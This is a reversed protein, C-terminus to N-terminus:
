SKSIHLFIKSKNTFTKRSELNLPSRTKQAEAQCTVSQSEIGKGQSLGALSLPHCLISLYRCLLPMGGCSACYSPSRRRRYSNYSNCPVLPVVTLLMLVSKFSKFMNLCKCTRGWDIRVKGVKVDSECWLMDIRGCSKCRWNISRGRERCTRRSSSRSSGRLTHARSM